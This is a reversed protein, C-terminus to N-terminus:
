EELSAIRQALGGRQAFAPMVARRVEFRLVVRSEYLAPRLFPQARHHRTGFEQYRAYPTPSVVYFWIHNGDRVPGEIFIEGRLRGGIRGEFLASNGLGKRAREVERRGASTLFRNGSITTDPRAQGGQQV